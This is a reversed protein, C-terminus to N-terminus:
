MFLSYYTFLLVYLIRLLLASHLFMLISYPFLNCLFVTGIFFQSYRSISGPGDLRYSTAIGASSDRWTDLRWKVESIYKGVGRESCM